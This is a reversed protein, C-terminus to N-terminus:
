LKPLTAAADELRQRLTALFEDKSLGAEIPPLYKFVIEGPLKLIRTKGWSYGTNLAMPVVPVKLRNYLAVVGPRYPEHVGPPTRTGEPFILIQRGKAVADDAARLMRRMAGAGADRDIPVLGAARIYWGIFPIMLLEKKLVFVPEPVEVFLQYTEFSSQHQAAVICAGEPIHERGETRFTIRCVVRALTLVGNVWLRITVLASRRTILTPLGSVSVLV